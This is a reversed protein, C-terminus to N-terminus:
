VATCTRGGSAATKRAQQRRHAVAQQQHHATATNAPIAQPATMASHRQRVRCRPALAKQTRRTDVQGVAFHLSATYTHNAGYEGVGSAAERGLNAVPHHGVALDGLRLQAMQLLRAGRGHLVQALELYARRGKATLLELVQISRQHRGPHPLRQDAAARSCLLEQQPTWATGKAKLKGTVAPQQLTNRATQAVRGAAERAQRPRSRLWAQM